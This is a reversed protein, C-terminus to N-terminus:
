KLITCIGSLLIICVQPADDAAKDLIGIKGLLSGFSTVLNSNISIANALDTIIDSTDTILPQSLNQAPSQTQENVGGAIVSTSKQTVRIALKGRRFNGM